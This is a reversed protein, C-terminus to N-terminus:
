CYIIRTNYLCDGFETDEGLLPYKERRDYYSALWAQVAKLAQRCSAPFPLGLSM